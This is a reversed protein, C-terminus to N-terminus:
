SGGEIFSESDTARPNFRVGQAPDETAIAKCIEIEAANLGHKDVLEAHFRNSVKRYVRELWRMVTSEHVRSSPDGRRKSHRQFWRRIPSRPEEVIRAIERLKLGEVHYYLLLLTEHEDLAALSQDLAAM